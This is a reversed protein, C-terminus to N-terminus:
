TMEWVSFKLTEMLVSFRVITINTNPSLNHTRKQQQIKNFKITNQVKPGGYWVCCRLSVPRNWKPPQVNNNLAALFCLTFVPFTAIQDWTPLFSIYKSINTAEANYISWLHKSGDKWRNKRLSGKKLFIQVNWIGKGVRRRQHRYNDTQTNTQTCTTYPITPSTVPPADPKPRAVTSRRTCLPADATIRSRGEESPCARAALRPSRQAKAGASTLEFRLCFASVLCM